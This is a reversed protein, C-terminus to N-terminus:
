IKLGDRLKGHSMLQISLLYFGEMLIKDSFGAFSISILPLVYAVVYPKGRGFLM